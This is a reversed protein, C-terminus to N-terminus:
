LVISTIIKDVQEGIYKYSHYKEVYERSQKELLMRQEKSLKIVYLLREAIDDVFSNIIPCEEWHPYIQKLDDRLYCLVIKGYAMAEIALRGYAGILFQDAVCDAQAMQELVYANTKREIIKLQVQFGRQKLEAVAAILYKTGKLSRHNPAHVITFVENSSINVPNINGLNICRMQLHFDVRQLYDVLDLAAIVAHAYKEGYNRIRVVYYENISAYYPDEEYGHLVTTYNRNKLSLKTTYIDSGYPNLIIIRRALRLLQFELWQLLPMKDLLRNLFPMIFVEHHTVAWIFVGYTILKKGLWNTYIFGFKDQLDYDYNVIGRENCDIFLPLCTALYGINRLADAVYVLNNNPFCGIFIKQRQNQKLRVLLCIIFLVPMATIDIIIGLVVQIIVKVRYFGSYRSLKFFHFLGIIKALM